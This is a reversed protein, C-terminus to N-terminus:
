YSATEKASDQFGQGGESMCRWQRTAAEAEPTPSSGEASGGGPVETPLKGDHGPEESTSIKQSYLENGTEIDRRYRGLLCQKRLLINVEDNHMMLLLTSHQDGRAATFVVWAEHSLVIPIKQLGPTRRWPDAQSHGPPRPSFRSRGRRAGLATTVGQSHGHRQKGTQAMKNFAIRLSRLDCTVEKLIM